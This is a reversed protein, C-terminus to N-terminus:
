ISNGAEIKSIDLLDNVLSVVHESSARIDRLYERYRDNEVPGFREEIMVEAFGIIANLPTRIEHSVRALFESKQNSATEAARRAAV